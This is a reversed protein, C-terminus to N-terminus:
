IDSLTEYSTLNDVNKFLIKKGDEFWFEVESGGPIAKATCSQIVRGALDLDVGLNRLHYSFEETEQPKSEHPEDSSIRWFVIGIDFYLHYWCEEVKILVVNAEEELNKQYWCEQALLQQLRKGEFDPWDGDIELSDIEMCM